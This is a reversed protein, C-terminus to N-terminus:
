VLGEIFGVINQLGADKSVKPVAKLSKIRHIDSDNSMIGYKLVGFGLYIAVDIAYKVIEIGEIGPLRYDSILVITKKPNHGYLVQAVEMLFEEPTGACIPEVSFDRSRLRKVVADLFMCDDDILVIKAV